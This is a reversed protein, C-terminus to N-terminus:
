RTPVGRSPQALQLLSGALRPLLDAVGHLDFQDLLVAFQVHQRAALRTAVLFPRHPAAPQFFQDLAQVLQALLRQGAVLQQELQAGRFSAPGAAQRIMSICNGSLVLGDRRLGEAKAQVPLVQAFGPAALATIQQPGVQGAAIRRM